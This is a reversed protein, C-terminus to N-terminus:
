ILAENYGIDKLIRQSTVQEEQNDPKELNKRM